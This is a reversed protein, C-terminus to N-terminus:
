NGDEIVVEEQVIRAKAIQSPTITRDELMQKQTQVLATTAERLDDLSKDHTVGVKVDIEKAVPPKLTQMLSHAADSRVKESRANVMLHAQENVAKQFIDANGIHIPIMTQEFLRTVLQTKKYATAYSAIAKQTTGEEVLRQYRDPFTKTYADIDLDGCSKYSVYRVADLYSQLKYKGEKIVSAFGLLNERYIERFVPDSISKNLTRVFTPTINNHFKKPLTRLLQEETVLNDDKNKAM